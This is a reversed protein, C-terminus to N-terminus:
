DAATLRVTAEVAETGSSTEGCLRLVLDLDEGLPFEVLWEASGGETGAEELLTPKGQVLIAGKPLVVDVRCAAAESALLWWGRVRARDAAPRDVIEAAISGLAPRPKGSASRTTAGITSGEQRAVPQTPQVRDAPSSRDSLLWVAAGALLVVLVVVVPRKM